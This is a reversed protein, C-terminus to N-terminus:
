AEAKWLGHLNCYAYAAILKDGDALVFDAKPEEGPKLYAIQSGKATEIAVWEIYHVDAMPHAVEGVAVAVKAGDVTIAPVHKEVAADTTGPIIETMEKGCCEVKVDADKIVQVIYGCDKCILFKM